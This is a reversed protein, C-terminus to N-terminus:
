RIGLDFAPLARSNRPCSGVYWCRIRRHSVKSLAPNAVSEDSVRYVRGPRASRSPVRPERHADYQKGLGTQRTWEFCSM